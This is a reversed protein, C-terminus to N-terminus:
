VCRSTYLLCVGYQTMSTDGTPQHLYGWGGHSKQREVLLRVVGGIEASYAEPDLELLFVLSLGLSYVLSQEEANPQKSDRICM